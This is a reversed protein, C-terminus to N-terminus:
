GRRVKAGPRKPRAGPRGTQEGSIWSITTRGYRGQKLHHALSKVISELTREFRYPPNILLMGCGNLRLATDDAHLCLEAVLVKPIGASEIKRHFRTVTERLKIPYWLAYVGTPWRAYAKQLSHLITDFEEGQSEFPPDMLVLGRREAPPVLAPLMEYGDRKHVGVRRDTAFLDRLSTAEDSQLECLVLRDSERLLSAALLPSGPYVNLVGGTNPASNFSRVLNLYVHLSSPLQQAELLPRIGNAAESTSRAQPGTLDYSGAGAHTDFYCLPTQKVTLAELLGVLTAHKLVDAFNGAHYAHRYNLPSTSWAINVLIPLQGGCYSPPGARPM